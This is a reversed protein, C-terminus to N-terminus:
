KFFFFATCSVLSKKRASPDRVQHAIPAEVRRGRWHFVGQGDYYSPFTTLGLEELLAAGM